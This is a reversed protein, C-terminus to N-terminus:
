AQEGHIPEVKKSLGCCHISFSSPSQIPGAEAEKPEVEASATTCGPTSEDNSHCHGCCGGDFDKNRAWRIMKVGEWGFMMGIVIATM